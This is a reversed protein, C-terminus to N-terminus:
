SYDQFHIRLPRHHSHHHPSRPLLRISLAKIGSTEYPQIAFDRGALPHSKKYGVYVVREDIKFLERM